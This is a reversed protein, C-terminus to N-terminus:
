WFNLFIEFLRMDFYGKNFSPNIKIWFNRWKLTKSYAWLIAEWVVSGSFFIPGSYAWRFGGKKEHYRRSLFRDLRYYCNRILVNIRFKCDCNITHKPKKLDLLM